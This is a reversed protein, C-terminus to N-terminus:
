RRLLRRLIYSLLVVIKHTGVEKSIETLTDYDKRVKYYHSYYGLREKWGIKALEVQERIRLAYGKPSQELMKNNNSTLGDELYECIYVIDNYWRLKYGQSAIRTWLVIESMFKENPYYPFKNKKLISSKFVELKDGLINNKKRDISSADLYEESFTAGVLEEETYGKNFGLGAISPDSDITKSKENIIEIAKDTLYDDSDLIFIYDGIALDIGKNVAIHKGANDQRYYKINLSEDKIFKNILEETNDQSGDDIVLWEFNKCTQRVLSNYLRELYSERNYTPTIISISKSM